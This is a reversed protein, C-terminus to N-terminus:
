RYVCAADDCLCQLPVMRIFQLYSPHPAVHAVLKGSDCDPTTGTIGGGSAVCSDPDEQAFVFTSRLGLILGLTIAFYSASWMTSPSKSSAPHTEIRHDPPLRASAKRAISGLHGLEIRVLILNSHYRSILKRLRSMRGRKADSQRSGRDGFSDGFVRTGM